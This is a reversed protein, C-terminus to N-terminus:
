RLSNAVDLLDDGSMTGAVIYLVGDENWMAVSADGQFEFDIGWQSGDFEGAEILLGPQDDVTIDRTEAGEPVPIVLTSQWDDIARVQSVFDEPLGPLSLVDDRLADMDLGEPTLLTPSEMQIVALHGDTGASYRSVLTAPVTVQFEMTPMEAPDPISDIPLNLEDIITTVSQTDLVATVSGGNSMMLEPTGDYGEPLDAPLKFAGFADRAADVDDLKVVNNELEEKDFTTEIEALSEFASMLVEVDATIGRMLLDTQFEGFQDPQVTVAEFKEVEFRNLFDDALSRMPTAVFATTLLMIALLAVAGRAARYKWMTSMFSDGLNQSDSMGTQAIRRRLKLRAAESDEDVDNNILSALKGDVYTATDTIQELRQRCHACEQLHLAVEPLRDVGNDVASRLTGDSLCSRTNKRRLDM